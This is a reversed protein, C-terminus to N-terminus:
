SSGVEYGIEIARIRCATSAAHTFKWSRRRSAGLRFITDVASSTDINVATSYTAQDDDAWAVGINSASSQRDSIVRVYRWFKRRDTEMDLNETQVTMTYSSGSDLYSSSTTSTWIKASGSITFLAKSATGASSMPEVGCAATITNLGVSHLWWFGTELCYALTYTASGGFLLHTMGYQRIVGCIWTITRSEVARDIADNSIKHAEMGNLRFIGGAGGPSSGIWYITDGVAKIVPKTSQRVCGTNIAGVRKLPSGTPNGAIEFFEISTDGFAAIQRGRRAVGVGADTSSDTSIYNNATWSSISNIDSNYVRGDTTMVFMYGNMHTHASCINTTPFDADTIQTWAAGSSYWVENENSITNNLTATLYGTGSVTTETILSCLDRDAILAGIISGSDKYFLAGTSAFNGFSFVTSPTPNGDSRFVCAGFRPIASAAVDSSASSGERKVLQPTQKGTIPNIAVSPFCNVFQQDKAGSIAGDLSRNTYSGVLPVRYVQVASM